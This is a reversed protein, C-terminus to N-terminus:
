GRWEWVQINDRESFFAADVKVAAGAKGEIEQYKLLRHTSPDMCLLTENVGLRIRQNPHQVAKM